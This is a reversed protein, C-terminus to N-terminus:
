IAYIGNDYIGNDYCSLPLIIGLLQMSAHLQSAMLLSDRPLPAAGRKAWYWAYKLFNVMEADGALQAIEAYFTAALDVNIHMLEACLSVRATNMRAIAAKNAGPPVPPFFLPKLIEACAARVGEDSDTLAAMVHHWHVAKWLVGEQFREMLSFIELTLVRVAANPDTLRLPLDTLLFPLLTGIPDGREFLTKVGRLVAVRAKPAHGDCALKTILLRLLEKRDDEVILDWWTHLILSVASAATTRIAPSPDLIADKLILVQESVMTTKKGRDFCAAVIPFSCMFLRLANQRVLPNHARLLPMLEREYLRALAMALDMHRSRELNVGHMFSCARTAVETKANLM